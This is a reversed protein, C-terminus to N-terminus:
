RSLKSDSEFYIGKEAFVRKYLWTKGNGSEGHIVIYKNSDLADLLREELKPRPIYMSNNVTAARPTFVESPEKPIRTM